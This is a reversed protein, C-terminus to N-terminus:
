TSKEANKGDRKVVLVSRLLFIKQAGNNKCIEFVVVDVLNTLIHFFPGNETEIEKIEDKWCNGTFLDEKYFNCSEFGPGSIGSAFARGFSPPLWLWQGVNFLKIFTSHDYNVVRSNFVNKMNSLFTISNKTLFDQFGLALDDLIHWKLFLYLTYNQNFITNVNKHLNLCWFLSKEIEYNRPYRSKRWYLKIANVEPRITILPSEHELPRPNSDWRWIGPSKECYYKGINYFQITQKLLSFIFSFFAPSARQPM